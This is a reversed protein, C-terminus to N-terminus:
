EVDGNETRRQRNLAEVLEARHYGRRTTSAGTDTTGWVDQPKVGYPKLAAALATKTWEAYVSPWQEALRSLIVESWLRDETIVVALDSLISRARGEPRSTDGAAHGTITGAKERLGRARAAITEAGPGDIYDGRVIQPDDAAGVLYGIGKDRPGFVTARLGNQYSSTGLVMDNETQGMVRLCFRIGVNASVGTPLSKADPRQTALILIIGMAPGRKIIGEALRAAEDKFDPHSFLEQCEDISCTILWLGLSRRAALEPTVKNEPCVERPLGSIVKARRELESYLERLTNMCETLTGDDAGSAYRHCCGELTSLDGTGKLEFTRLEVGPDLAAALLLVRLAFTKGVRPMAGILVNAFVLTIAVVRGRQDHGFPVPTFLDARGHKALPWTAPKASAMDRDGVWLVLRGAHADTAPEPWVCGLPRRLGSALAQRRAIIDVATVGYPLDVEARWGPGDRTIPAPFTIGPGKVLAKNIEAIGLAGLARIVIDSTLRTPKDVTVARGTIPKDAPSGLWGLVGATLIGITWCMWAPAWLYLALVGAAGLLATITALQVRRRIRQDRSEALKLYTDADSQRVLNTALARGEADYVWRYARGAGVWLGLPSRGLLKAAYLPARVTHYGTWHWALGGIWRAGATLDDRSRLWPAIVARRQVERGSWPADLPDRRRKQEPPDVLVPQDHEDTVTEGSVEGSVEEVAPPEGVPEDAAARHPFDIVRGGSVPGNVPENVPGNVPGNVPANTFAERSDRQDGVQDAPDPQNPNHTPESM